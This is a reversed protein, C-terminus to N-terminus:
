TAAKLGPVARTRMAELVNPYYHCVQEYVVKGGVTLTDWFGEHGTIFEEMTVKRQPSM